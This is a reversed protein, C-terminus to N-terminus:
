HGTVATFLTRATAETGPVAVVISGGTIADELVPASVVYGDVLAALYDEPHSSRGTAQAGADHHATTYSAIASGDAPDLQLLITWPSGPVGPPQLDIGTVHQVVAVAPALRFCTLSSDDPAELLQDRPPSAAVRPEQGTPCRAPLTHLPRFQIEHQLTTADLHVGAPPRAHHSSSCAALAALCAAVAIPM